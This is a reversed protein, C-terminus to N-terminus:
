HASVRYFQTQGPQFSMTRQVLSGTGAIGDEVVTWPAGALAPASELRYSKGAVTPWKLVVGAAANSSNLAFRSAIDTPNTGARYEEINTMGDGDADADPASLINMLSGFYQMRWADPIEDTWPVNARNAMWVYGDDTTVPFRTLAASAEARTIKVTYLADANATAPIKIDVTGVRHAGAPLQNSIEFWTAAFSAPGTMGGFTPAGVQSSATFTVPTDLPNGRDLNVVSFELLLSRVSIPGTTELDIPVHVVDGANARIKGGVYRATIPEELRATDIAPKQIKKALKIAQDGAAGRFSNSTVQARREGGSWFREYNVLGPDLARRFTVYFDELTLVGDGYGISNIASPSALVFNSNAPDSLEVGPRGTNPDVQICCSDLADYMDSGQPPVDYNYALIQHVQEMDNNAITGDGFDGANFWRFPLVDGVLYKRVAINLIRVASIGLTTDSGDPAEIVVDSAIGDGTGSARGVSVRYKNGIVANAPINFSFSGAVVRGNEELFVYDHPQSYKILDQQLTNYLNTENRRELWGVGVFNGYGNTVILSAFKSDFTPFQVVTGLGNAILQTTLGFQTGVFMAPPIPIFVNPKDIIPKVLATDFGANYPGSPSVADANTVMLNFQLGYMRTTPPISLTVPAIFRQGPAGFFDSSAEGSSFGLSIRNPTSGGTSGGSGGSGPTGVANTPFSLGSVKRIVSYYIESDYVTNNASVAVGVPERLEAVDSGGDAWGPLTEPPAGLWTAPDVGYLTTVVGDTNVARVRHNLRDAVVVIGNTSIGIQQPSNFRAIGVAGDSFGPVGFTGALQAPTGGGIPVKWLVQNGADSIVLTGDGSIAIGRFEPTGDTVVYSQVFAGAPTYRRVGGAQGAVYVNGANDLAISTPSALNTTFLSLFVGGRDFRAVNGATYNVVLVDGNGTTAVAIPGSLHSNAFTGTIEDATIFRVANNGFDAVLLRGLSDLALGNPRNFLSVQNNGDVYGAHFSGGITRVTGTAAHSGAAMAAILGLSCILRTAAKMIKDEILNRSM